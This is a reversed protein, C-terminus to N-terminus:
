RRLRIRFNPANKAAQRIEFLRPLNQPKHRNFPTTTPCIPMLCAPRHQLNGGAMDPLRLPMSDITTLEIM